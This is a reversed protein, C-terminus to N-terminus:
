VDAEGGLMFIEEIKIRKAIAVVQDLTVAKMKQIMEEITVHDDQYVMLNSLFMKAIAIRSDDWEMLNALLNNQSAEFEKQTINGKEMDLLQQEIVQKAREYNKKEIGAYIIMFNKFRYFRSYVTYALSEKERFNQFLKSSPTAGLIANYVSLVYYDDPTPQLVRLAYTIVSQNTQQAEYSERVKLKAIANPNTNTVLQEPTFKSELKEKFIDAVTQNINEYGELNGSIICTICSQHLLYQYQEWIDKATLSEIVNEEGFLYVGSIEQNSILAETKAVAYSMKDDKRQRVKELMAEKERAVLQEELMGEQMRPHYVMEELFALAKPLIDENGPLFNRNVLELRFEVSYLDGIKQVNVDFETHYLSMLYTEIETQDKFKESSKGLISALVASKSVQERVVPMTYNLSVYIGKFKPDHMTYIQKM